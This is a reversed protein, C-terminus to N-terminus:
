KKTASNMRLVKNRWSLLYFIGPLFFPLSLLLVYSVQGFVTSVATYFGIALGSLTLLAGGVIEIMWGVIYAIIAFTFLTLLFLLDYSAKAERIMAFGEGVMFSIILVIGVFGLLRAAWRYNRFNIMAAFAARTNPLNNEM